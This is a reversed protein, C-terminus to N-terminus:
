TDGPYYFIRETLGPYEGLPENTLNDLFLEGNDRIGWNEVTAAVQTRKSTRFIRGVLGNDEPKDPNAKTLTSQNPNFYKMNPILIRSKGTPLYNPISHNKISKITAVMGTVRRFPLTNHPLNITYFGDDDDYLEINKTNVYQSDFGTTNNTTTDSVTFTPSGTGSRNFTSPILFDTFFFTTNKITLVGQFFSDDLPRIKYSEDKIVELAESRFGLQTVLSGEVRFSQRTTQIPESLLITTKCSYIKNSTIVTFNISELIEFSKAKVLITSVSSSYVNDTRDGLRRTDRSSENGPIRGTVSFSSSGTANFNASCTFESIKTSEVDFQIPVTISQDISQSGLFSNVVMDIPIQSVEIPVNDISYKPDISNDRYFGTGSYSALKESEFRTRRASLNPESPNIVQGSDTSVFFSSNTQGSNFENNLLELEKFITIQGFLITIKVKLGQSQSRTSSENRVTSQEIFANVGATTTDAVYTRDEQLNARVNIFYDGSFDSEDHQASQGISYASVLNGSQIFTRAQGQSSLPISGNEPIRFGTNISVNTTPNVQYMKYEIGTPRIIWMGYLPLRNTNPTPGFRGVLTSYIGRYFLEITRDFGFESRNTEYPSFLLSNFGIADLLRFGANNNEIGDSDASTEGAYIRTDNGSYVSSRYGSSFVKTATLESINNSSDVFVINPLNSVTNTSFYSFQWFPEVFTITENQNEITTVKLRPRLDSWYESGPKIINLGPDNQITLQNLRRPAVLNQSSNDKDYGGLRFGESETTFFV